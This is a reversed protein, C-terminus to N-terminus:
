DQVEGYSGWEGNILYVVVEQNNHHIWATHTIENSTRKPKVDHIKRYLTQPRKGQRKLRIRKLM